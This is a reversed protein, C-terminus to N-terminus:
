ASIPSSWDSHENRLRYGVGLETQIHPSALPDTQLKHRLHSLTVRLLHVADQYQTTGWLEHILQHHTLIKDAHRILIKLLDYETPTLKVQTHNILVERRGLDVRLNGSVFIDIQTANVGRLAARIRALLEGTAFPKIVYDDAGTDLSCIKESEADRVSIVIIPTFTLERLCRIIEKGDIDPLDLDLLVLDPRILPFSRLAEKGNGVQYMAYGAPRLAVDLVQRVPEEDDVLLIRPGQKEM